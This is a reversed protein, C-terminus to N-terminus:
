DGIDLQHREAMVRPTFGESLRSAEIVDVRFPLSSAEFADKLDARARWDLSNPRTVLLDLDSFPRAAGTARSGFVWVEPSAPQAYPALVRRLIRQVEAIQLPSM